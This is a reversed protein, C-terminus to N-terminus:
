PLRFAMCLDWRRAQRTAHRPRVARVTWDVTIFASLRADHATIRALHAEIVDRASIERRALAKALTTATL